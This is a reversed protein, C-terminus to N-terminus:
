VGASQKFRNFSKEREDEPTASPANAIQDNRISANATDVIKPDASPVDLPNVEDSPEDFSGSTLGDEPPLTNADFDLEENNTPIASTDLGLEKEEENVAKTIAKHNANLIGLLERYFGLAKKELVRGTIAINPNDANGESVLKIIEINDSDNFAAVRMKSDNNYEEDYKFVLYFFFEPTKGRTVDKGFVDNEDVTALDGEDETVDTFADDMSAMDNQLAQKEADIEDKKNPKRAETLISADEGDEFEGAGLVENFTQSYVPDNIFPMFDIATNSAVGAKKGDNTQPAAEFYNYYRLFLDPNSALVDVNWKFKIAFKLDQVEVKKKDITKRTVTDVPAIGVATIPEYDSYHKSNISGQKFPTYQLRGLNEELMLYSKGELIIRQPIM